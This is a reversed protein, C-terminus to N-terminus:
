FICQAIIEEAADEWNYGLELRACLSPHTSDTRNFYEVAKKVAAEFESDVGGSVALRHSHSFLVLDHATILM